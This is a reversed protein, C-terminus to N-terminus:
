SMNPTFNLFPLPAHSIVHIEYKVIKKFAIRYNSCIKSPIQYKLCMLSEFIQLKMSIKVPLFTIQSFDVTNRYNWIEYAGEGPYQYEQRRM